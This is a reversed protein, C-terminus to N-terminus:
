KKKSNTVQNDSNKEDTKTDKPDKSDKPDQTFSHNMKELFEISEDFSPLQIEKDDIVVKHASELKLMSLVLKLEPNQENFSLSKNVSEKKIHLPYPIFIMEPTSKSSTSKAPSPFPNTQSPPPTASSMKPSSLTSSSSLSQNDM